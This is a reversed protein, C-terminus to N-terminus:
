AIPTTDDLEQSKAHGSQGSAKRRAVKAVLTDRRLAINWVTDNFYYTKKWINM